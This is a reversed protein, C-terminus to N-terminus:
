NFSHNFLQLSDRNPWLALVATMMEQAVELLAQGSSFARSVKLRQLLFRCQLGLLCVRTM